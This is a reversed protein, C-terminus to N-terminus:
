AGGMPTVKGTFEYYKSARVNQYPQLSQWMALDEKAPRPDVTYNFDTYNFERENGLDCYRKSLLNVDTDSLKFGCTVMVRAFQSKTVHGRRIPDFDEFTPKLLIRREKVRASIEIELNDITCNDEESLLKQNRRAPLTTSGDTRGIRALPDKELEDASFATDIDACFQFYNFM